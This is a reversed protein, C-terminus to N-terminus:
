SIKQSIRETGQNFKGINIYARPVWSLFLNKKGSKFSGKLWISQVSTDELCELQEYELSNKIYVVVRAFGHHIWSKPFLINYGPVKLRSEDYYGDKKRLECESLGLINPKHDNVIRKVEFIKNSLSRINLHMNKIRKTIKAKNGYTYKASFNPDKMRFNEQCLNKGFDCFDTKYMSNSRYPIYETLKSAPASLDFLKVDVTLQLFLNIILLFWLVKIVNESSTYIRTVADFVTRKKINKEVELHIQCFELPIYEEKKMFAIFKVLNENLVIEM